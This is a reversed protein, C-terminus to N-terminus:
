LIGAKEMNLKMRQYRDFAYAEMTPGDVISMVKGWLSWVFDIYIKYALMKRLEARINDKEYYAKLITEDQHRDFNAEIALDALDWMSANMGAYEWDILYIRDKELMWNTQAADNHCLVLNDHTYNKMLERVKVHMTHYDDYLEFGKNYNEAIKTEYDFIMKDTDFKTHTDFGSSHLKKFTKAAAIIVTDDLFDEATTMKANKLYQSVKIGAKEDFFYLHADINLSNILETTIKENKRNVIAQAMEGPLRVFYEDKDTIVHFSKNSLGGTVVNANQIVENPRVCKMVDILKILDKANVM